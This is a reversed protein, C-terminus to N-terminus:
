VKEIKQIMNPKVRYEREAAEFKAGDLDAWVKLIGIDQVRRTKMFKTLGKVDGFVPNDRVKSKNLWLWCNYLEVTDEVTRMVGRNPCSSLDVKDTEMWRLIQHPKLKGHVIMWVEKLARVIEMAIRRDYTLSITSNLGGLEGLGRHGTPRKDTFGSKLLHGMNATAHYLVEVNDHDIDPEEGTFMQDNIAQNTKVWAEYQTWFRKLSTLRTNISKLIAPLQMFERIVDLTPKEYYSKWGYEGESWSKLKSKDILPTPYRILDIGNFVELWSAANKFSETSLGGWIKVGEAADHIDKFLRYIDNSETFRFYDISCVEDFFKYIDYRDDESELEVLRRLKELEKDLELLDTNRKKLAVHWNRVPVTIKSISIKM